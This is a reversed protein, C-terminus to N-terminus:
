SSLIPEGETERLEWFSDPQRQHVRCTPDELLRYLRQHKRGARHRPNRHRPRHDARKEELQVPRHRHGRDRHASETRKRKGSPPHDPEPPKKYSDGGLPKHGPDPGESESEEETEDEQEEPIEERETRSDRPAAQHKPTTTRRRPIEGRIDDQASSAQNPEKQEGKAAAARKSVESSIQSRVGTSINRIAKIQRTVSLILDHAIRRYPAGWPREFERTLEAAATCGVCWTDGTIPVWSRCKHCLSAPPMVRLLLAKLGFCKSEIDHNRGLRRCSDM